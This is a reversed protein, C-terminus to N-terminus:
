SKESKKCQLFYGQVASLCSQGNPARTRCRAAESQAQLVVAKTRTVVGEAVDREIDERMLGFCSCLPADLDKLPIPQAFADRLVIAGFDDFYVVSCAANPCFSASQAFRRRETEPLQAALTEAGVPQGIGQCKPCRSPGDEIERVFAKNM